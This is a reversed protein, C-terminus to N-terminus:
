RNGHQRYGCKDGGKHEQKARYPMEVAHERLKLAPAMIKCGVQNWEQNWKQWLKKSLFTICMSSPEQYVQEPKKATATEYRSSLGKKADALLM